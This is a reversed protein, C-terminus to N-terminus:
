ILGLARRRGKVWRECGWAHRQIPQPTPMWVFQVVDHDYLNPFSLGLARSPSARTHHFHFGLKKQQLCTNVRLGQRNCM